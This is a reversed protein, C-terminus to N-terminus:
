SRECNTTTEARCLDNDAGGDATDTGSDGYLEDDGGDGFLADDGKEGDIYDDGPGGRLTDTPSTSDSGSIRDNGPGGLIEVESVLYGGSSLVDASSGGDIFLDGSTGNIRDAGSGGRLTSAAENVDCTEFFDPRSPGYIRDSGGKGDITLQCAQGVLLDPGDSGTLVATGGTFVEHREFLGFDITTDGISGSGSAVDAEIPDAFTVTDLQLVDTGPGGRVTIDGAGDRGTLRLYDNGGGMLASGPVGTYLQERRSSGRFDTSAGIAYFNDFGTYRFRLDGGTRITRAGNDIRWAGTTNGQVDLLSGTGARLVNGSTLGRAAIVAYDRGSGLDIRDALLRGPRGAVVSDAGPGTTIVDRDTDPVEPGAPYFDEGSSAHVSDNVARTSGHYTDAGAGLSAHVDDTIGAEVWVDDDGPGAVVTVGQNGGRLCILDHGKGAEVTFAGNSVIVDRGATGNLQMQGAHGVVTARVGRCTPPAADAVGTAVVPSGLAAAAAVALISLSRRM